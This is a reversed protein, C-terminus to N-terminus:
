QTSTAPLTEEEVMIAVAFLEEEEEENKSPRRLPLLYDEYCDQSIPFQSHVMTDATMQPKELIKGSISAPLNLENSTSVGRHENQLLPLETCVDAFICPGCRHRKDALSTLDVYQDAVRTARAFTRDPPTPRRKMGNSRHLRWLYTWDCRDVHVMESICRYTCTLVATYLCTWQTSTACTVSIFYASTTASNNVSSSPTMVEEKETELDSGRVMLRLERSLSSTVPFPPPFTRKLGQGFLANGEFRKRAVPRDTWPAKPRVRATNKSLSPSVPLTPALARGVNSPKGVHGVISTSVSVQGESTHPSGSNGSTEEKEVDINSKDIDFTRNLISDDSM